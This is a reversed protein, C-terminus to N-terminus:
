SSSNWFLITTIHIYTKYNMAQKETQRDCILICIACSYEPLNVSQKKESIVHKM